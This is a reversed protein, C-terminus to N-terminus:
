PAEKREQQEVTAPRENDFPSFGENVDSNIQYDEFCENHMRWNQWEGEFIGKYHFFTEGKPISQGCWECRHDKRGVHWEGDGFNSM